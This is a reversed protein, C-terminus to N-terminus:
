VDVVQYVANEGSGQRAPQEQDVITTQSVLIIASDPSLSAEGERGSKGKEEFTELEKTVSDLEHPNYEISGIKDMQLVDYNSGALDKQLRKNRRSQEVRKRM